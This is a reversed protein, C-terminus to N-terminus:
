VQQYSEFLMSEFVETGHNVLFNFILRNMVDRHVIIVGKYESIVCECSDELFATVGCESFHFAAFVYGILTYRRGSDLLNLRVDSVETSCKLHSLFLEGTFDRVCRHHYVLSIEKRKLHIWAIRSVKSCIQYRLSM